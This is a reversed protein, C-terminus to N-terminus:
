FFVIKSVFDEYLFIVEIIEIFKKFLNIIDEWM